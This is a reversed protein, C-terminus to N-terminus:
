ETTSNGINSLNESILPGLAEITKEQNKSFAKFAALEIVGVCNSNSDLIPAILIHKPSGKGLGSAITIYNEPVESLNLIVKNKAVQGPLTDGEKFTKPPDDSFYAYSTQFVFEKSEEDKRFAVAQVIDNEKAINSLLKEMFPEENQFDSTPILKKAESLYDIEETEKQDLKEDLKEEKKKSEQISNKLQEFQQANRQSAGIAASLAQFFVIAIAASVVLFLISIVPIVTQHQALQNYLSFFVGSVSVILVLLLISYSFRSKNSFIRM